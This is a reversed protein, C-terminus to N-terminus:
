PGQHIAGAAAAMLAMHGMLAMRGMLATHATPVMRGTRAM